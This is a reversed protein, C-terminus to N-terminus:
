DINIGLKELSKKRDASRIKSVDFGTRFQFPKNKIKASFQKLKQAKSWDTLALILSDTINKGNTLGQVEELLEIPMLATVKKLDENKSM